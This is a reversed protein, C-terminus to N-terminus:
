AKGLEEEVIACLIHGVLIHMEQIRPVSRSPVCLTLHAVDKIRGGGEGTWGHTIMGLSRAVRLAEVVNSSTGSTSIGVVLDGSEGIAEIQRAFVRHYGYDNALATVLSINAPLSLAKFGKREKLYRGVLEASIHQADAASGGNGFFLIKKGQRLTRVWDEAMQSIVPVLSLIKERVKLWEELNGQILDEWPM